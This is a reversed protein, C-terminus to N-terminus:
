SPRETGAQVVFTGALKDHWGQRRGTGDFFPSIYVLLQILGFIAGAVEPLVWRRFSAPYGPVQGQANVVKVSAAMKGLTAGRTAILVVEYAISIIATILLVEFYKGNYLSFDASHTTTGNSNITTTTHFIKIGAAYALAVTVGFIIIGDIIRAVLRMGM